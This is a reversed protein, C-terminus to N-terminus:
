VCDWIVSGDGGYVTINGHDNVFVCDAGLAKAEDSDKARPLENVQDISPWFGFDSGDGENSGFYCYPPAFMNLEDQLECAIDRAEESEFDEIGYAEAILVMLRDRDKRGNDSCWEEANRSVHYELERVFTELLDETRCTGHSISGLSAYNM